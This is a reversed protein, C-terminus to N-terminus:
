REANTQWSNLPKLVASSVVKKESLPLILKVRTGAGARSSISLKGGAAQARRRMGELGKGMPRWSKGQDIGRGNDRVELVMSDTEPVHRCIVEVTSAKAHRMVNALSEQAIRIVQQAQVGRVAELEDCLQLKWALRVGLKDLSHQMRYRLRGLAELVHDNANDIADVTMKLEVLCEELALAVAQQHPSARSDLSTLITVIQSGVGDHLDQAIRRRELSVAIAAADPGFGFGNFPEFGSSRQFDHIPTARADTSGKHQTVLHWILVLFAAYVYQSFTAMHRSADVLSVEDICLGIGMVAGALALWSQYSRTQYVRYALVAMLLVAALLNIAMWVSYDPVFTNSKSTTQYHLHLAIGGAAAQLVLGLYLWINAVGASTLLFFGVSVLIAQYGVHTMYGALSTILPLKQPVFSLSTTALLHILWIAATISMALDVPNLQYRWARGAQGLAVIALTLGVMTGALAWGQQAATLVSIM